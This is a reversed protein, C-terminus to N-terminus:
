KNLLTTDTTIAKASKIFLALAARLAVADVEEGAILGKMGDNVAKKTEKLVAKNDKIRQKVKNPDVKM